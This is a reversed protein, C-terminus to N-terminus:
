GRKAGVVALAAPYELAFLRCEVFGAAVVHRWVDAGYETHVLCGKANDPSGHYSPGAGERSVNMRDVIIPVTFACFGGVELVRWCESFGRVPDPVHELTDSHVVLDFSADEFYLDMMDSDPFEVLRHNELVEFFQTLAGAANVELVRLDRASVGRVFEKLLGDFGYCAMVAKALAMSRLNSGCTRCHLGQQRDVYDAEYRSLRWEDELARWLVPQRVMATSGCCACDM